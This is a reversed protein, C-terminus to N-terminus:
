SASSTFHKHQCSPAVSVLSLRLTATLCVCRACVSLSEHCVNTTAVSDCVCESACVCVSTLTLSTVSTREVCRVCLCSCPNTVSVSTATHADERDLQERKRSGEKQRKGGTRAFLVFPLSINPVPRLSCLLQSRLLVAELLAHDFTALAHGNPQPDGGCQDWNLDFDIPGRAGRERERPAAINVSPGRPTNNTIPLVLDSPHLNKEREVSPSGGSWPLPGSVSSSTHQTDPLASPHQSTM